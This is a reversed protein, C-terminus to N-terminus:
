EWWSFWLVIINETDNVDGISAKLRQIYNKREEYDITMTKKKLKRQKKRKSWSGPKKDVLSLSTCWIKILNVFHKFLEKKLIIKPRVDEPINLPQLFMFHNFNCCCKKFFLSLVRFQGVKFFLDSSCNASIRWGRFFFCWCFCFM